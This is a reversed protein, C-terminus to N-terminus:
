AKENTIQLSRKGGLILFFIFFIRFSVYSFGERYHAPGGRLM